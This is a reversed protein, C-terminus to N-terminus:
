GYKGEEDALIRFMQTVETVVFVPAAEPLAAHFKKEAKDLREYGPFKIEFLIFRGVRNFVVLDPFGNGARSTDAWWYGARTLAQEFEPQNRDRHSAFRWDPM